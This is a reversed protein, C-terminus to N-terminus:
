TINYKEKMRAVLIKDQEKGVFFPTPDFGVKPLETITDLIDPHGVMSVGWPFLGVTEKRM